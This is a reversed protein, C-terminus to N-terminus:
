FRVPYFATGNRRPRIIVLSIENVQFVLACIISLIILLWFKKDSWYAKSLSEVASAMLVIAGWQLGQIWVKLESNEGYQKLFVGLLIMLISAPTILALGGLFGALRGARQNGIYVATQFSFAGPMAKLLPLVQIFKEHSMWKKDEVVEKQMIAVLAVPGGFGTFGLKLFYFFVELVSGM